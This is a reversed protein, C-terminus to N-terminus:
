PAPAIGERIAWLAAQTRSTVGLKLLINSVHTRATRESIDLERAIDNNSMGRAVLVLVERERLSLSAVGDTAGTLVRTVKRAVAPDLHLEGAAATRVARAVEDADADKLVYGAAGAALAAHVREAESFSTMAVVEVSPFTQRIAAITAIGDMGPMVLDTLVVDPLANDADLERLQAMAETGNSAEAAISIGPLVSLFARMGHRVVTHDDVIMVRLEDPM